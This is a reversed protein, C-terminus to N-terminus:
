AEATLSLEEAFAPEYFLSYRSSRKGDSSVTM